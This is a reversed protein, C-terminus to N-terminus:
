DRLERYLDEDSRLDRYLDDDDEDPTAISLLPAILENWSALILFARLLWLVLFRLADVLWGGDGIGPVEQQQQQQQTVSIVGLM